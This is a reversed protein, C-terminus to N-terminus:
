IGCDMEAAWARRAPGLLAEQEREIRARRKDRREQSMEALMSANAWRWHLNRQEYSHMLCYKNDGVAHEAESLCKVAQWACLTTTRTM